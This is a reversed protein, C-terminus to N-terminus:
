GHFIRRYRIPTAEDARVNVAFIKVPAADRFMM